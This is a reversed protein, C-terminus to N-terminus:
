KRHEKGLRPKKTEAVTLIEARPDLAKIAREIVTYAFDAALAANRATFTMGHVRGERIYVARFLSRESRPTM